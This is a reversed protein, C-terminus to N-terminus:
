QSTSQKHMALEGIAGEPPRAPRRKAGGQAAPLVDRQTAGEAGWKRPVPASIFFCFLDSM